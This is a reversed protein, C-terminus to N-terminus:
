TDTAKGAASTKALSQARRSSPPADVRSKKAATKEAPKPTCEHGEMCRKKCFLADCDGCNMMCEEHIVVKCSLLECKGMKLDDNSGCAVCKQPLIKRSSSSKSKAKVQVAQASSRSSKPPKSPSKKESIKSGVQFRSTRRLQSEVQEVEMTVKLDIEELNESEQVLRSCIAQFQRPDKELAVVNLGARNFGIVESGSGAGIVLARGGPSCHVKGLQMSVIPHKETPNVSKLDGSAEMKRKHHPTHSWLLNHRFLPNPNNFRPKAASRTPSYGVLIQDIANLYQHTGVQNHQPKYVYLLHVHQYGNTELAKWIRGIDKPHVHLFITHASATNMIALQQFLLEIEADSLLVDWEAVDLGYPM